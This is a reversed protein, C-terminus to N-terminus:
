QDHPDPGAVQPLSTRFWAPLERALYRMRGNDISMLLRRRRASNDLVFTRDADVLAIPLHALAEPYRRELVSVPVSHGGGDVRDEVRQISLDASSLGVFVLTIKYGAQRAQAIFRLASHGTLTTEIALSESEKLLATRRQLALIGARKEDLRGGIRPLDAAIDDPNIVPIRTAVRRSVLTTKGAGNPGAIVWLQPRM